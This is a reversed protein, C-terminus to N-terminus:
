EQPDQAIKIEKLPTPCVGGRSKRYLALPVFGGETTKWCGGVGGRVEYPFHRFLHWNQNSQNKKTAHACHCSCDEEGILSIREKFMGEVRRFLYQLCDSSYESM